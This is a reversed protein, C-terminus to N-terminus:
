VSQALAKERAARMEAFDEAPNAPMQPPFTVRTLNIDYVGPKLDPIAAPTRFVPGNALM